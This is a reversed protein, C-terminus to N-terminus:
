EVDAQSITYKVPILYLIFQEMIFHLVNACQYREGCILRRLGRVLAGQESIVLISLFYIILMHLHYCSMLLCVYESMKILDKIVIFPCDAGGVKFKKM